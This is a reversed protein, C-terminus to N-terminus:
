GIPDGVVATPLLESDAQAAIGAAAAPELFWAVEEATTTIWGPRRLGAFLAAALARAATRERAFADVDLQCPAIRGYTVGSLLPWSGPDTFLSVCGLHDYDAAGAAAAADVAEIRLQGTLGAGRLGAALLECERTSRNVARVSRGRVCREALLVPL